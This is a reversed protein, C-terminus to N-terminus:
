LAESRWACSATRPRTWGGLRGRTGGGIWRSWSPSRQSPPTPAARRGAGPDPAPTRRPRDGVPPDLQTAPTALHQINAVRVIESGTGGRGVGRAPAASSRRVVIEHETVIRKAACSSSRWTTTSRPTPARSSTSGAVAATAAVASRRVLLEPSAGLFAAELTVCFCFCSLFLERLAGYVAAPDHAASAEVVVERALVVKELEGGSILETAREVAREFDHPPRASRISAEGAPHRDAAAASRGAVVGGPACGRRPGAALRRTRRSRPSTPYCSGEVRCLALEPLVALAPLALVM